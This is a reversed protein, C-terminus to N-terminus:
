NLIELHSFLHNKHNIKGKMRNGYLDCKHQKIGTHIKKHNFYASNHCSSKECQSCEYNKSGVNIELHAKLHSPQLFPRDCYDCKFNKEAMHVKVHKTRTSNDSFRKWMTQM